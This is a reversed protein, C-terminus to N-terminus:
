EVPSSVGEASIPRWQVAGGRARTEIKTPGGLRLAGSVVM